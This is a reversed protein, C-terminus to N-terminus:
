IGKSASYVPKLVANSQVNVNEDECVIVLVIKTIIQNNLECCKSM